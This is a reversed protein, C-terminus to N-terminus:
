TTRTLFECVNQYEIGNNATGSEGRYLVCRRTITGYRHETAALKERDLLHRCQEDAIETSHKIEYCECSLAAPDIFDLADLLNLNNEEKVGSM